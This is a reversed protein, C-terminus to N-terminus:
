SYDFKEATKCYRTKISISDETFTLKVNVVIDKIAYGVSVRITVNVSTFDDENVTSCEFLRAWIGNESAYANVKSQLM